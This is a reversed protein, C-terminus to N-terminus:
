SCGSAQAPRREMPEFATQSDITPLVIGGLSVSYRVPGCRALRKQLALDLEVTHGEGRRPARWRGDVSGETCLGLQPPCQTSFGMSWLCTPTRYVALELRHECLVILLHLVHVVWRDDPVDVHDLGIQRLSSVPRSKLSRIPIRGEAVPSNGEVFPVEPFVRLSGAVRAVDGISTVSSTWPIWALSFRLAPLSCPQHCCEVM